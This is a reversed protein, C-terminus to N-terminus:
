GGTENEFTDEASRDPVAEIWGAKVRATMVLAEADERDRVLREVRLARHEGLLVLAREDQGCVGCGYVRM